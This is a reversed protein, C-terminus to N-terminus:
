GDDGQRRLDERLLNLYISADLEARTPERGRDLVIHRRDSRCHVIWCLTRLRAMADADLGLGEAYADASHAYIAGISTTPDLLRGYAETTRGTELAGEIAFAANLFFYAHDLGPLGQLEASEWDLLAPAGDSLLINWPSCDRHELVIPLDPLGTLLKRAEAVSRGVGAASYGRDLESLPEEVLRSWWSGKPQPAADGALELLWETLRPSFEALASVNLRPLLPSGAVATEALALRGVRRGTALLRPVGALAPQTAEIERLAEAERELGAEAEAVRAFKVVLSPAGTGEQFPVGVVKNVSRRGGTLLLWSRDRPQAGVAAARDLEAEIEGGPQPEGGPKRAIATLPALAGAASAVRWLLRALAQRRNAPAHRRFLYTSAARSDVPIWFQAAGARPRPWAWHLRVDAFGARKLARRARRTTGPLPLRWECRVEGGPRLHEYARSLEARSPRAPIALDSEGPKEAFPLLFRWDIGRRSEDGM